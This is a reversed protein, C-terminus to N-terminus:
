GDVVMSVSFSKVVSTVVEIECSASAGDVEEEEEEEEEGIM